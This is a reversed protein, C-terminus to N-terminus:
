RSFCFVAVFGVGVGYFRWPCPVALCQLGCFSFGSVGQLILAEPPLIRCDAVACFLRPLKPLSSTALEFRALLEM